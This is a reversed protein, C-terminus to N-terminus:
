VSPYSQGPEEVGGGGGGREPADLKRGSGGPRSSTDSELTEGLFILWSTKPKPCDSRQCWPATVAIGKGEM